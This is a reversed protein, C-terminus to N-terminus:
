VRFHSATRLASPSFGSALTPLEWPHPSDQGLVPNRDDPAVANPNLYDLLPYFDELGHALRMADGPAEGLEGPAGLVINLVAVHHGRITQVGQRPEVNDIQARHAVRIYLVVDGQISQQQGDAAGEILVDALTWTDEVGADCRGQSPPARAVDVHHHDSLIGLALVRVHSAELIHAEGLFDTNLRTDEGPPTALPHYGVGEIKGSPAAFRPVYGRHGLGIGLAVAHQDPVPGELRHRLAIGIDLGPRQQHVGGAHVEDPPGVCEVDHDGAVQEPVDQGVDPGDYGAAQANGGAAIDVRLAPEGRHELRYM